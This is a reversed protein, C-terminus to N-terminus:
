YVDAGLRVERFPRVPDNVVFSVGGSETGYAEESIKLTVPVALSTGPRVVTGPTLPCETGRRLSVSRVILDSQGSNSINVELTLESGPRVDGFNRYMPSVECRAARSIDTASFDDVAIANATFPLGAEEGDVSFYVREALLGYVPDGETFDYTFTVLGREGPALREPAAITLRGSGYGARVSLVTETEGTNVVGVAVSEASGNEVYGFAVHMVEARVGGALAFPYEEEVSRPRGIVTGKVTLLNRNGNSYVTVSKSFKGSYNAPDFVVEVSGRGGPKVPERSYDVATCGCDVKIRTIVAAGTGTNTFSFLHSVPGDVERLTGFDWEYEDFVLASISNQAWGAACVLLAATLLVARKAIGYVKM